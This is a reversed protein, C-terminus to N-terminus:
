VTDIIQAKEVGRLSNRLPLGTFYCLSPWLERLKASASTARRGARAARRAQRREEEREYVRARQAEIRRRQEEVM